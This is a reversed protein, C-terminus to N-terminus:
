GANLIHNFVTAKQIQIRIQEQMGLLCDESMRRGNLSFPELAKKELVLERPRGNASFGMQHCLINAMHVLSVLQVDTRAMLPSHHYYITEALQAPLNWSEAFWGGVEAHDAGFTMEEAEKFTLDEREALELSRKFDEWWYQSMILKGIDHLLGAVFSEGPLRRGLKKALFRASAGCSISHQWFQKRLSQQEARGGSFMQLLSISFVLDKLADFGLVVVALSVTAIKRPFGYFASNAVQLIKAALAPDASIVGALDAASSKPNNIVDMVHVVTDPLGSLEAIDEVQKRLNEKRNHLYDM